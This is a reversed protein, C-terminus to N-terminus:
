EESVDAKFGLAGSNICYRLNTPAPGDDFVHGLHSDCKSCLVETRPIGLSHDGEENVSGKAIPDWFSPWGTGSDFKTKSSFLEYGCAICTYVGEEKSKNYKGSFPRETGKQRCIRYQEPTLVKKWEEETMTVKEGKNAQSYRPPTPSNHDKQSEAKQNDGSIMDEASSGCGSAVMLIVMVGFLIAVSKFM